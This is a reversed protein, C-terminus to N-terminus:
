LLDKELPFCTFYVPGESTVIFNEELGVAIDGERVYVRLTLYTNTELTEPSIIGPGIEFGEHWDLGLAHGVPAPLEPFDRLSDLLSGATRGPWCNAMVLRMAQHCRRYLANEEPEVIGGCKFTRQARVRYGEPGTGLIGFIVLEGEEIPRDTPLSEPKLSNVGAACMLNEVSEFGSSVLFGQCKAAIERETAGPQLWETRTRQFAIDAIDTVFRLYELEEMDKLTRAKLMAPHADVIEAAPFEALASALRTLDAGLHDIGFTGLCNARRLRHLGESLLQTAPERDPHFSVATPDPNSEDLSHSSLTGPSLELVLPDENLTVVACQGYRTTGSEDWPDRAWGTLYRVNAPDLCLLAQLGEAEMIFRARTLRESYLADADLRDTGQAAAVDTIWSGTPDEVNKEREDLLWM